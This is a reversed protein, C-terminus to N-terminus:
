REPEKVKELKSDSISEVFDVLWKESVNGSLIAEIDDMIADVTPVIFLEKIKDLNDEIVESLNVTVGQTYIGGPVGTEFEKIELMSALKQMARDWDDEPEGGYFYSEMNYDVDHVSIEEGEHENMYELLTM